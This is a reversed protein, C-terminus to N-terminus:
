RLSTDFRKRGDEDTNGGLSWVLSFLFQSTMWNLQQEETLESCSLSSLLPLRTLAFWSSGHTPM